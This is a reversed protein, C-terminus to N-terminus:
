PHHLPNEGALGEATAATVLDNDSAVFIPGAQESAALLANSALASALQVADYGRLRHRQTLEVARDVVTRNIAVLTYEIDCHRQFLDLSTDRTHRSIGSIARHRAALAAAVEVLAIESILIVNATTPDCLSRIWSSGTEALYRKVVASSDLYFTTV